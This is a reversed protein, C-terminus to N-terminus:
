NGRLAVGTSDEDAAERRKSGPSTLYGLMQALPGMRVLSSKTVKWVGKSSLVLKFM